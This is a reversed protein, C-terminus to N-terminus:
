AKSISAAHALLAPMTATPSGNIYRVRGHPGILYYIDLYAQPDYALSTARTATGLLWSPGGAATGGYQRGFAAIPQGPQGLDQYLELEVVQVGDARLRALNAALTQTGAQCSSCWTAVFWVLTPHGRLSALSVTRGTTSQFSGAPAPRGVAPLGAPPAGGTTRSSAPTTPSGAHLGIATGVLTIAVAATGILWWPARRGRQRGSRSTRRSTSTSM